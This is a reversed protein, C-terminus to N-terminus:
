MYRCMKTSLGSKSKNDFPEIVWLVNKLDEWHVLLKGTNSQFYKCCLIITNTLDLDDFVSFITRILVNGILGSWSRLIQTCIYTM